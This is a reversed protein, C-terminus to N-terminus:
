KISFAAMSKPNNGTKALADQVQRWKRLETLIEYKHAMNNIHSIIWTMGFDVIIIIKHIDCNITNYNLYLNVSIFSRSIPTYIM